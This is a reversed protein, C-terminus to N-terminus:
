LKDNHLLRSCLGNLFTSVLALPIENKLKSVFMDSWHAKKLSKKLKLVEALAVSAGVGFSKGSLDLCELGDCEEVAQILEAALFFYLM